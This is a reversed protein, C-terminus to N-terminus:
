IVSFDRGNRVRLRSTRTAPRSDGLIADLGLLDAVGSFAGGITGFITDVIGRILNKITQKLGRIVGLISDDDGGGKGSGRLLDDIGPLGGGGDGGLGLLGLISDLDRKRRQNVEPDQKEGNAISSELIKEEIDLLDEIEELQLLTNLLAKQVATNKVRPEIQSYYSFCDELSGFHSQITKSKCAILADQPRAEGGGGGLALLSACLVLYNSM